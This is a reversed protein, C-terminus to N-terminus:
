ACSKSREVALVALRSAHLPETGTQRPGENSFLARTDDLAPLRVEARCCRTAAVEPANRSGRSSFASLALARRSWAMNRAVCSALRGIEAHGFPSRGLCRPTRAPSQRSSPPKGAKRRFKELARFRERSATRLGHDSVVELFPFAPGWRQNTRWSWAVLLRGCGLVFGSSPAEFGHSLRPWASRLVLADDPLFFPFAWTLRLMGARRRRLASECAVAQFPQRRHDARTM